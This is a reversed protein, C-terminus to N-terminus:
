KPNSLVRLASLVRRDGYEFFGSERGHLLSYWHKSLAKM